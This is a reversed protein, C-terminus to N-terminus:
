EILFVYHVLIIDDFVSGLSFMLIEQYMGEDSMM